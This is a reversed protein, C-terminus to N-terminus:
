RKPRFSKRAARFAKASKAELSKPAYLFLEYYGKAAAAVLHEELMPVEKTKTSHPPVFESSDKRVLRAPLGGVETTEVPYAKWGPVAFTPKKTLRAVLADADPATADGPAIWRVQIQARVGNADKPGLFTTGDDEAVATWGKPTACEFAATSAAVPAASARAALAVLVAAAALLKM